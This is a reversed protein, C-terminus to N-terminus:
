AAQASARARCSTVSYPSVMNLCHRKGIRKTLRLAEVDVARTFDEIVNALEENMEDMTDKDKSSLLADGAREAIMLM